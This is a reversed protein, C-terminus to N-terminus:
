EWTMAVQHGGVVGGALLRARHAGAHQDHGLDRLAVLDGAGRDRAPHDDPDAGVAPERLFGESDSAHLSVIGVRHGVLVCEAPATAGRGAQDGEPDGKGNDQTETSGRPSLM